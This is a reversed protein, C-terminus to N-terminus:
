AITLLKQNIVKSQDYDIYILAENNTQVELYRLLKAGTVTTNTTSSAKLIAGGIRCAQNTPFMASTVVDNLVRTEPEGTSTKYTAQLTIFSQDNAYLLSVEKTIDMSPTSLTVSKSGGSTTANRTWLRINNDATKEIWFNKLTDTTSATNYFNILMTRASSGFVVNCEIKTINWTNLGTIDDAYLIAGSPMYYGAGTGFEPDTATATRQSLSYTKQAPLQLPITNSTRSFNAVQRNKFLKPEAQLLQCTELYSNAEIGAPKTLAMAIFKNLFTPLDSKMYYNDPNLQSQTPFDNDSICNQIFDWFYEPLQEKSIYESPDPEEEVSCDQEFLPKYFSMEQNDLKIRSNPLMRLQTKETDNKNIIDASDVQIIAIM